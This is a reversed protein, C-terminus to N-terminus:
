KMAEEFQQLTTIVKTNIICPLTVAYIGDNLHLHICQDDIAEFSHLLYQEGRYTMEMGKLQLEEM